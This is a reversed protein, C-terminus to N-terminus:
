ALNLIATLPLWAWNPRNDLEYLVEYLAKRLEWATLALRTDEQTKPLFRATGPSARNFYGALFAERTEKEWKVLSASGEQGNQVATIGRAYNFSRLMGAVDKLPSSKARREEISRAPEGEFDLIIWRGDVTRLTQGLHYDGHVRTKSCNVLLSLNDATTLLRSSAQLIASTLSSDLRESIQPRNLRDLVSRLSWDLDDTWTAVDDLTVPEPAFDVDGTNKALAQHLEATTEGLAHAESLWSDLSKGEVSGSEVLSVLTARSYEWGDAVSEVFAQAIALSAEEGGQMSVRIEGFTTPVNEFDAVGALFRGIEVDPNLGSRLKRFFKVILTDGLIVSSNSQEAGSLRASSLSGIEAPDPSAITPLWSTGLSQLENLARGQLVSILWTQFSEHEIADYVFMAGDRGEVFTIPKISQVDSDVVIPLSYDANIGDALNISVIGMHLEVQGLQIQGLNTWKLRSITESKEGYWRRSPLYDGLVRELEIKIARNTEIPRSM